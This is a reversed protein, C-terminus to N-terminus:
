GDAEEAVLDDLLEHLKVLEELKFQIAALGVRVWYVSPGGPFRDIELIVGENEYTEREPQSVRPATSPHGPQTMEASENKM